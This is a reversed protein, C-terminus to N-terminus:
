RHRVYMYTTTTSHVTTRNLKLIITKTAMQPQWTHDTSVCPISLKALRAPTYIQWITATDPQPQLPHYLSVFQTSVRIQDSAPWTPVEFYSNRDSFLSRYKEYIEDNGSYLM